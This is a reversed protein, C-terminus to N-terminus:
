KVTLNAVNKRGNIDSRSNIIKWLKQFLIWTMWENSKNRGVPKNPQTTRHNQQISETQYDVPKRGCAMGMWSLTKQFDKPQDISNRFFFFFFLLLITSFSPIHFKILIKKEFRTRTMNWLRFGSCYCICRFQFSYSFICFNLWIDLVMRVKLLM